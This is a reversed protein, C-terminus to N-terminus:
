EKVGHEKGMWEVGKKYGTNYNIGGCAIAIYLAVIVLMIVVIEHFDKNM